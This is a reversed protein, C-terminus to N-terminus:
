EIVEIEKVEKENFNVLRGKLNGEIPKITLERVGEESDAPSTCHDVIGILTKNDTFTVKIKEGSNYFIGM